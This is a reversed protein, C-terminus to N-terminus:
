LSGGVLVVPEPPVPEGVVTISASIVAIQDDIAVTLTDLSPDDVIALNAKAAQLAALKDVDTVTPLVQAKIQDYISIESKWAAQFAEGDFIAELTRRFLQYNNRMQGEIPDIDNKAFPM